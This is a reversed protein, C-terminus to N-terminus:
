WDACMYVTQGNEKSTNLEAIMTSYKGYTNNKSMYKIIKNIERKNLTIHKGYEEDGYKKFTRIYELLERDRTIFNYQLEVFDKKYFNIDVGM